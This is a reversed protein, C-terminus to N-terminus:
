LGSSARSTARSFNPHPSSSFHTLTRNMEGAHGASAAAAARRLHGDLFGQPKVVAERQSNLDADKRDALVVAGYLVCVPALDDLLDAVSRDIETAQLNRPRRALFPNHYKACVREIRGLFRTRGQGIIALAPNVLSPGNQAARHREGM